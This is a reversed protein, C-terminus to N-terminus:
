DQKTTNILIWSHKEPIFGTFSGVRISACGRHETPGCAPPYLSGLCGLVVVAAMVEVVIPDNSRGPNLGQGPPFKM